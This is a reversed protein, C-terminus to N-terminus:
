ESVSLMVCCCCSVEDELKADKVTVSSKLADTLPCEEATTDSTSQQTCSLGTHTSRHMLSDNTTTPRHGLSSSWTQGNAVTSCQSRHHTKKMSHQSGLKTSLAAQNDVCKPASQALSASTDVSQPPRTTAHTASSESLVTQSQPCSLDHKSNSLSTQPRSIALVIDCGASKLMQIARRHSVNALSHSNVQFM